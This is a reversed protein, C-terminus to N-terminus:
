PVARSQTNQTIILWFCFSLAAAAITFFFFNGIETIKRSIGLDNVYHTYKFKWALISLLTAYILAVPSDSFYCNLSHLMFSEDM